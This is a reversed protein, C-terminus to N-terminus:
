TKKTMWECFKKNIFSKTEQISPKPSNVLISLHKASAEVACKRYLKQYFLEKHLMRDHGLKYILGQNRALIDM